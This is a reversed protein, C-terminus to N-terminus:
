GARRRRVAGGWRGRQLLGHPQGFADFVGEASFILCVVLNGLSVEGRDLGSPEGERPNVAGGHGGGVTPSHDEPFAVQGLGFVKEFLSPGEM